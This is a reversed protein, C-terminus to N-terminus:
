VGFLGFRVAADRGEEARGLGDGRGLLRGARARGGYRGRWCWSRRYRFEVLFCPHLLERGLLLLQQLQLDLGQM